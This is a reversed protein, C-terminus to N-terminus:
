IITNDPELIRFFYNCLLIRSNWFSPALKNKWSSSCRHSLSLKSRLLSMCKKQAAQLKRKLNKSLLPFCSTCFM